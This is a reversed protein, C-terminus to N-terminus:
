PSKRKKPLRKKLKPLRKKRLGSGRQPRLSNMTDFIDNIQNNSLKKSSKGRLSKWKHSFINNRIKKTKELVVDLKQNNPVTSLTSMASVLGIVDKDGKKSIKMQAIRQILDDIQDISFDSLLQSLENDINKSM